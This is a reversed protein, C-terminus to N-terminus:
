SLTLTVSFLKLWYPTQTSSFYFEGSVVHKKFFCTLFCKSLVCGYLVVFFVFGMEWEDEKVLTDTAEQISRCCPTWRRHRTIERSGIQGRVWENTGRFDWHTKLKWSDCRVVLIITGFCFIWINSMSKSWVLVHNKLICSILCKRHIMNQRRQCLFICVAYNM